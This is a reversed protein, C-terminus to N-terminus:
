GTALHQFMGAYAPFVPTLGPFINLVPSCGRTHPSFPPSTNRLRPSTPVDGRIRPFGQAPNGINEAHPFMGAYAPFVPASQQHSQSCQSCGRTHPSFRTIANKVEAVDPVDGRIRPFGWLLGQQWLNIRFMGAYAPFVTLDTGIRYGSVSCGRTHPSFTPASGASATPARFMGAYAPFVRYKIM